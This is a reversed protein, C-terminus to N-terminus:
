ANTAWRGPGGPFHGRLRRDGHLAGADDLKKGFVQRQLESVGTNGGPPLYKTYMRAVSLGSSQKRYFSYARGMETRTKMDRFADGGLAHIMKDVIQRGREKATDAAFATSAALSLAFTRRTMTKEFTTRPYAGSQFSRQKGQRGCLTKREPQDHDQPAIEGM